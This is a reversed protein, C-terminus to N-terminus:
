AGVFDQEPIFYVEGSEDGAVVLKGDQSIICKTLTKDLYKFSKLERTEVDWIKISGDRAASMIGLGNHFFAVSHVFQGLHQWYNPQSTDLEHHMLYFVPDENQVNWYSVEGRDGAAIVHLGDPAIAVAEKRSAKDNYFVQAQSGTALDWAIIVRNLASSTFAYKSDSSIVIETMLFTEAPIERIVRGSDGDRVVIAGDSATNEQGAVVREGDPTVALCVVKGGPESINKAKGTPWDWVKIVGNGSGSVLRHGDPILALSTIASEQGSLTNLVIRRGCHWIQITTDRSASIACKNDPTLVLATIGGEEYSHGM